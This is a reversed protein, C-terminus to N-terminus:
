NNMYLLRLDVGIKKDLTKSFHFPSNSLKKSTFKQLVRNFKENISRELIFYDSKILEFKSKQGLKKLANMTFHFTSPNQNISSELVTSNECNPVDVFFLGKPNLVSKIKTFLKDPRITHELVHSMWVIDFKQNINFDEAYGKHCIQENFKQNILSVNRNDPEIGIVSFGHEKFLFIAQGGGSGIELITKKSNIEPKCYDIQSEWRTKLILSRPDSYNSNIAKESDQEDWYEKEYVQKAKKYMIVEDNGSILLKCNQCQFVPLELYSNSTFQKFELNGCCICKTTLINTMYM